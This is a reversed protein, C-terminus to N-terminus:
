NPDVVGDYLSFQSVKYVTAKSIELTAVLPGTPRSFGM